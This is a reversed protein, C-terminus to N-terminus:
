MEAFLYESVENSWEIKLDKVLEKGRATLNYWVLCRKSERSNPVIFEKASKVESPYNLLILRSNVDGKHFQNVRRFAEILPSYHVRRTLGNRKKWASIEKQVQNM